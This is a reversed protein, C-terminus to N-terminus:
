ACEKLRTELDALDLGSPAIGQARIWDPGFEAHAEECYEDLFAPTIRQLAGWTVCLFTGDASYGVLPVDHGGNITGDGGGVDWPKGADFQQMAFAPFKIGIRCTGFMQICWRVHDLNSPEVSGFVALKHGIFGTSELYECMTTEDCGNDTDSNGPVYGGIIDYLEKVDDDTPVVVASTNATRLM